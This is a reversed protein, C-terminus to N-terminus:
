DAKRFSIEVLCSESDTSPYFCHTRDAKIIDTTLSTEVPNNDSEKKCSIRAVDPLEKLSKNKYNDRNCIRAVGFYDQLNISNDRIHTPWIDMSGASPDNDCNIDCSINSDKISAILKINELKTDDTPRQGIDWINILKKQTQHFVTLDNKVFELACNENTNDVTLKDGDIKVCIKKNLLNPNDSSNKSVKLTEDSTILECEIGFVDGEGSPLSVYGHRHVVNATRVTITKEIGGSSLTCRFNALLDKQESYIVAIYISPKDTCDENIDFQKVTGFIIDKVTCNYANDDHQFTLNVNTTIQNTVKVENQLNDKDLQPSKDKTFSIKTINIKFEQDFLQSCGGTTRTESGCLSVLDTKQKIGVTATTFDGAYLNLYYDYAVDSTVKAEDGKQLCGQLIFLFILM